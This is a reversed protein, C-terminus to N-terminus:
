QVMEVDTDNDKKQVPGSVPEEARVSKLYQQQVDQVLANMVLTKEARTAAVYLLNIEDQRAAGTLKPDFIDPYDDNLVVVPWELGKSRHATSVTIDAALEDTVTFQRMMNLKQPLPFYRDLLSVSQLMEIDETSKAIRCYDDYDTYDKLLHPYKLKKTQGVSFWYLDEPEETRYGEIGGVWYVRRKRKAAMLATDIVGAVTRSLVTKKPPHLYGPPLVDDDVGCGIVLKEEGDLVLLANAVEAVKPGFRFSHTLWLREAHQLVSADLANDAGRFRYIQQHRDGALIVQCPQGLVLAQTVPDADQAEDFLITQYHTALKPASLQYLKLYVDHTVPFTEHINQMKQWIFTVGQIVRTPNINCAKEDGSYHAPSIASDASALFRYLTAMVQQVLQWYRTNLAKAVETIRLQNVLRHKYHRGQTAWALQHSTKCEVNFPFKQEAEDRVARNFALYLMKKDANAEAYRVLTATKGTGAFANVVLHQGQWDIVAQQEQTLM